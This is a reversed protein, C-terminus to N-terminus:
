LWWTKNTINKKFYYLAALVGLVVIVWFWLPTGGKKDKTKEKRAKDEQKNLQKEEEQSISIDGATQSFLSDSVLKDSQSQQSKETETKNHSLTVSANQFNYKKAGIEASSPKEPDIPELKIKTSSDSRSLTSNELQIVVEKTTASTLNEYDIATNNEREVQASVTTKQREVTKVKHKSKCGVLLIAMSLFLLLFSRTYKPANKM